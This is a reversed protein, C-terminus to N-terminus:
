IRSTFQRKRNLDIKKNKSLTNLDITPPMIQMQPRVYKKNAPDLCRIWANFHFWFKYLLSPAHNLSIRENQSTRIYEHSSTEANKHTHTSPPPNSNPFTNSILNFILILKKLGYLLKSYYM